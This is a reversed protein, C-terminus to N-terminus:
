WRVIKLFAVGKDTAGAEVECTFDDGFKLGAAEITKLDEGRVKLAHFKNAGKVWAYLRGYPVVKGDEATFTHMEYGLFTGEFKM